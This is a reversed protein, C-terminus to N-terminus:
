PTNAAVFGIVTMLALVVTIGMGVLALVMGNSARKEQIAERGGTQQGQSLDLRSSLQLQLANLRDLNSDIKETLADMRVDAEKRPMFSLAQEALQQRFANVGDFRKEISVESKLIAKDAAMLAAHTEERVSRIHKHFEKDVRALAVMVAQEQAVFRQEYRRDHELILRKLFEESADLTEDTHNREVDLQRQMHERLSIEDDTNRNNAPTREGTM